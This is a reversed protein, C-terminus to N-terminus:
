PHSPGANATPKMAEWRGYQASKAPDPDIRDQLWFSFWDLNREYIAARHVPQWKIHHEGPFVYLEVPKGHERLATLTELSHIYEDDALQMLLPTRMKGANLAMSAPRWFEDDPRSADPYGMRRFWEAQAPGGLAMMSFPEMCCTSIAAAAFRNQNILAFRATTSGDSLGTIGIRDPDIAGRALALDLGRMLSDHVSRRTAWNRHGAGVVAAMDAADETHFGVSDPGQFSFVAIGRAALPYIPYEDGTGGRLFGDSRYQVIVLPWGAPPPVGPPLVLDAWAPLGLNNKWRLREVTPLDTTRLDPNPDFFERASGSNPDIAIIRRPRRAGEALCLIDRRTGVCGSVRDSTRLLTRVRGSGPSWAHIASEERHWGDRKLFMVEDGHWWLGRLAGTCAPDACVARKGSPAEAWVASLALFTKGVPDAGARWGARGAVSHIEYVWQSPPAFGDKDAPSAPAPEGGDAPLMMLEDPLVAPLEPEASRHPLFRADYLYGGAAEAARASLFAARGPRVTYLVRAGDGSWSVAEVDQAAHTLQTAPRNDLFGKWAQVHGAVRKRYVLSLGDPSWVPINVEFSGSPRRVGRLVEEYRIGSGGSDVVRVQEPADLDIVVLTECLDNAEMVARAVFFAVQRADPSVALPSTGNAGPGPQSVDRLALLNAPETLSLSSAPARPPWVAPCVTEGARAPVAFALAAAGIALASGRQRRVGVM